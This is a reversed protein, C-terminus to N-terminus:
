CETWFVQNRAAVRRIIRDLKICENVSAKRIFEALVQRDLVAQTLEKRHLQTKRRQEVLQRFGEESVVNPM